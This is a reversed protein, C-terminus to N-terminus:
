KEHEKKFTKFPPCKDYMTMIEEEMTEWDDVPLNMAAIEEVLQQKQQRDDGYVQDVADRILSGLSEGRAEAERMLREYQAESLLVQTRKNYKPM